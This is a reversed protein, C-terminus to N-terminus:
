GASVPGNREAQLEAQLETADELAQMALACAAQSLPPPTSVVNWGGPLLAVQDLSVSGDKLAALLALTKEYDAATAHARQIADLKALLDQM